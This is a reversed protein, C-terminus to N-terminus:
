PDFTAIQGGGFQGVLLRGSLSGFNAPAMTVGWPSNMWKGHELRLVPAGDATFVIVYGNGPAGVDDGTVPDRKAFTVAIRGGLNQVNFPSFGAPVSADHFAGSSLTVPKFLTDFVDVKGAAFNAAYIVNHGGIMGLTIGKYSAPANPVMVVADNPQVNPNWGAINGDETAFLFLAPQMPALQFDSTPNFVIGTPTKSVNVVLPKAVPFANGAADFVISKGRDAANVWWPGTPSHDIGWANVLSSDTHDALGPVDSVLNHQLYANEASAPLALLAFVTAYCLACKLTTLRM